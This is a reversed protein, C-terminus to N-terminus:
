NSGAPRQRKFTGEYFCWGYRHVDLAEQREVAVLEWGEQGLANLKRLWEQRAEDRAAALKSPPGDVEGRVFVSVTEIRYEFRQAM